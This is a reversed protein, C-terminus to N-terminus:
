FFRGSSATRRSGAGGFNGVGTSVNGRIAAQYVSSTSTGLGISSPNSTARFPAASSSSNSLLPGVVRNGQQQQQSALGYTSSSTTMAPNSNNNNKGIV